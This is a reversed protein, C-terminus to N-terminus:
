TRHHRVTIRLAGTSHVGDVPIRVYTGGCPHPPDACTVSRTENTRREVIPPVATERRVRGATRWPKRRLDSLEFFQERRQLQLSCYYLRRCRYPLFGHRAKMSRLATQSYVWCMQRQAPQAHAGGAACSSFSSSAVAITDSFRPLPPEPIPTHEAPSAQARRLSGAWSRRRIEPGHRTMAM